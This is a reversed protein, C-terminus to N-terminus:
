FHNGKSADIWAYKMVQVSSNTLNIKKAQTHLVTILGQM